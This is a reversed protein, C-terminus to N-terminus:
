RSKNRTFLRAPNDALLMRGIHRAENETNQGDEVREALVRAINQRAMVLHAYSLEPYRYDGGFGFIKNVPVSDLMEHLAARTGTPSVIHMWCYDVYVNPFTKALVSCERWYPYGIHFLDFRMRPFLHFLNTLDAPRSNALFNGNGAQLGTHIQFPVGHADALSVLHHFMHDALQRYPRNETQRFGAPVPEAAKMLREFSRAADEESVERFHLDRQYAATTKVTAMGAEIAQGFVKEMANKLGALNTISANSQAELRQVGEKTVPMVYGDFKQALVFFEPDLPAPVPAWYADNVAYRLNMRRKLIDRYFGPKNKAAIAENIRPLTDADITEFGYIDRIAIRLAQGYGTFRAHEWWPAFIKWKAEPSSEGAYQRAEMGASIVDSVAYHGALTFFDIAESLRQKEPLIHEHTDVADVTALSQLIRRYLQSSVARLAGAAFPLGLFLRRQM